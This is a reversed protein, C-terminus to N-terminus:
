QGKGQVQEGDVEDQDSWEVGSESVALPVEPHNLGKEEVSQSRQEPVSPCSETTEQVLEKFGHASSYELERVKSPLGTDGNGRGEFGIIAVVGRM